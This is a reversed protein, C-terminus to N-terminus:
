IFRRRAEHVLIDVFTPHAEHSRRCSKFVDVHKTLVDVLCIGVHKMLVDVRFSALADSSCKYYVNVRSVIKM